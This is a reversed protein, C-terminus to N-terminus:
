SRSTTSPMVRSYRGHGESPPNKALRLAVLMLAAAILAGPIAFQTALLLVVSGAGLMASATVRTTSASPTAPRGNEFRGAALAVLATALLAIMFWLPRTLWWGPTGPAPLPVALATSALVSFGALGILVPMHWVYVSMSRTGIASMAAGVRPRAACRRLWPQALSLFALHAVGLLVLAATPPNLNVYMDPSYVGLGTVVLLAALAGVGLAGRSDRSLRDLSGDALWFGFQQLLLWVFGLNAFGLAPIGSGMTAADVGVVAFALVVLTLLRANEHARVMVPVLAQCLIYVGLFWLPQSVRFGAIAVIDAPLGCALMIVLAAVVTVVAILAPRLLRHMRAAVFAASPRGSDRHRRFATISSFGGVIFFLPMMQMVWSLPVFWATGEATNEFVPAGAADVSVGVMLAHLLVVLVLCAARVLDISADRTRARREPATTRPIEPLAITSM